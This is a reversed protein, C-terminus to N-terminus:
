RVLAVIFACHYAVIGVYVVTMVALGVRALGHRRLKALVVSGTGVLAMKAFAFLLPGGTVLIARMVWNAEEAHGLQIWTLTFCSDLLNLFLLLAPVHVWVSHVVNVQPMVALSRSFSMTACRHVELALWSARSNMRKLVLTPVDIRWNLGRM